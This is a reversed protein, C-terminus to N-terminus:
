GFTMGFANIGLTTQVANLLPGMNVALAGGIIHTMGSMTSAQQKGEAVDRIIFLGRVFSILGIIILFKLVASVVNYVAQTEVSSMGSTYSLSAFTRTQTTGFFSESLSNVLTMASILVGGIVFTTVTGLGGPGKAGEQASKVLRSIGIMIFIMGAVFCFFTLATHVPGLIDQMFCGMALDLSNGTVGTCAVLNENFGTNSSNGTLLSAAILTVPTVTSKMVIVVAPLAFFAGGAIFRSIGEWLSTQSPNTVHDRIKILAWVGFILGIIYSLATLFTPLGSAGVWGWCIVSGLGGNFMPAACAPALASGDESSFVFAAGNLISSITGGVGLGGAAITEYMATFVTPLAFLAGAVLLRIVSDKLPMRNPDDVHDRIKFLASIVMLLGLLYAVAAILAPVEDTALQINILLANFNTGLSLIASFIGFAGGITNMLGDEPVFNNVTGGNITNIAAEIIIPLSFLAGGVLFRIIPERIPTQNPNSVHAITKFLGSVALLIGSLYAFGALLLPLSASSDTINEAVDNVDVAVAFANNVSIITLFVGFFVAFYPKLM